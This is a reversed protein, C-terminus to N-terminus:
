RLFCIKAVRTQPGATIKLFYVGSSATRGNTTQGTWRIWHIGPSAYNRDQSWVLRGRVDYVQVRVRAPYALSLAARIARQFPNPHPPLVQFTRPARHGDSAVPATREYLVALDDVLLTDEVHENYTGGPFYFRLEALELPFDPSAAPNQWGPLLKSLAGTQKTWTETAATSSLRLKFHEGTADKFWAEPVVRTRSKLELKLLDPQGGVPLARSLSAYPTSGSRVFSVKLWAARPPSVAEETDVRAECEWLRLNAGGFTWLGRLQDFTDLVVTAATDVSLSAQATWQLLRAQVTARGRSIARVLGPAILEVAQGTVSWTPAKSDYNWRQSAQFLAALRFLSTEGLELGTGPPELWLTDVPFVRVFASDQLFRTQVRVWGKTRSPAARFAGSSDINGLGPDCSWRVPVSDAALEVGYRDWFRVRFAFSAAVPLVVSDPELDLQSVTDAPASSVVLLANAVPREGSADSPRNVVSDRVVMTTSGGGDLNVAQYAGLDLMLQALEPLTMGVSWGPQRGDVTVLYVTTSDRSFGVATRPHRVNKFNEGGEVSTEISVRGDRVIRPLGGLAELVPKRLPTLQFLFTLTDALHVHKLLLNRSFGHGSLVLGNGPIVVNGHVSDVAVVVGGFPVGVRASDTLRVTFEAGWRNTATTPGRYRNYVVLEDTYRTGNVRHIRLTDGGSTVVSAALSLRSIFPKKNETLGFVSRYSPNKLVVGRLVQVGVPVGDQSFFDGNIAGVVRHGPRSQRRALVSTLERGEVRNRAKITELTTSPERLDVQLVHIVWPGDPSSKWSHVVGPAVPETGDWGSNGKTPFALLLAPSLLVSIAFVSSALQARFLRQFNPM